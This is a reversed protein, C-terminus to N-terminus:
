MLEYPHWEICSTERPFVDNKNCEDRLKLLEESVVSIYPEKPNLFSQFDEELKMVEKMDKRDVAEKYEEVLGYCYNCADDNSHGAQQRVIFGNITDDYSSYLHILAQLREEQKQSRVSLEELEKASFLIGAMYENLKYLDRASQQDIDEAWKSVANKFKQVSTTEEFSM